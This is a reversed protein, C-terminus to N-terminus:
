CTTADGLLVFRTSQTASFQLCSGLKTSLTQNCASCEENCLVYGSVAVGQCVIKYYTGAVSFPICQGDAADRWATAAGYTGDPVVTSPDCDTSNYVQQLLQKKKPPLRVPAERAWECRDVNHMAAWVIELVVRSSSNYVFTFDYQKTDVTTTICQDLPIAPTTATASGACTAAGPAKGLYWQSFNLTNALTNVVATYYFQPTAICSGNAVYPLYDIPKGSCSGGNVHKIAHHVSHASISRHHPKAAAAYNTGVSAHHTNAAAADGLQLPHHLNSSQSCPLGKATGASMLSVVANYVKCSTLAAVQAQGALASPDSCNMGSVSNVVFSLGFKYMTNFGCLPCSSAYDMGGHHIFDFDPNDIPFGAYFHMLGMGYPIGKGWGTTFPSFQTMETISTNSVVGGELLEKYFDAVDSARAAINGCTWGNLCSYQKFDYFVAAPPSLMYAWQSAVDYDACRGLRPFSTRNWRRHQEPTMFSRQDYDTWTPVTPDAGVLVFGLLTYGISSYASCSGPLCLWEKNVEYLMEIPTKDEGPNAITFSRLAEDDYDHLGSKMSLLQRVTVSNIRADGNWIGLLTTQNISQLVPDAYKFAPSDLDIIGREAAQMVAAATYTKTVSGMPIMADTSMKRGTLHDEIGAAAGFVGLLSHSFGVQFSANFLAADASIVTDVADKV